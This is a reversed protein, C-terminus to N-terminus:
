TRMAPTAYQLRYGAGFITSIEVPNTREPALKKRLKMVYANLLSDNILRPGWVSSVLEQRSVTTGFKSALCYLVLFEVRSLLIENAGVMLAQTRPDLLLPGNSLPILRQSRSRTRGGIAVVKELLRSADFPECLLASAPIGRFRGNVPRDTSHVLINRPRIGPVSCVLRYIEHPQLGAALRGFITVDPASKRFQEILDDLTSVSGVDYGCCQLTHRCKSAWDKDVDAILIRKSV